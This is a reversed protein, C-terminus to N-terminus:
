KQVAGKYGYRSIKSIITFSYKFNLSIVLIILKGVELSLAQFWQMSTNQSFWDLGVV